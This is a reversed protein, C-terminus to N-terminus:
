VLSTLCFFEHVDVTGCVDAIGSRTCFMILPRGLFNFYLCFLVIPVDATECFVRKHTHVSARMHHFSFSKGRVTRPTDADAFVESTIRMQTPTGRHKKNPQPQPKKKTKYFKLELSSQTNIKEQKHVNQM